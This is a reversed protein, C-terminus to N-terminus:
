PQKLTAEKKSIRDLLNYIRVRNYRQTLLPYYNVALNIGLAITGGIYDGRIFAVLLLPTIILCLPLHIREFRRTREEYNKLGGNIDGGNFIPHNNTKRNILDGLVPVYKKYFRVGVLEYVKGNKWREFKKPTLYWEMIKQSLKEQM